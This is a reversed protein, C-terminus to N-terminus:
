IIKEVSASLDELRTNRLTKLVDKQLFGWLKKSQCKSEVPCDHSTLCPVLSVPGELAVVIDEASIDRASKALKYGGGPGQRGAVLGAKKLSGAVEELYGEAMSMQEAADKVSLFKGESLVALQTMFILGFHNRESVRFLSNMFEWSIVPFKRKNPSETLGYAKFTPARGSSPGFGDCTFCLFSFSDHYIWVMGYIEDYLFNGGSM